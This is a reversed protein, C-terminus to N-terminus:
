LTWADKAFESQFEKAFDHTFRKADNEQDRQIKKESQDLEKFIQDGRVKIDTKRIYRLTRADLKKYPLAANFTTPVSDTAHLEFRDTHNNYVIFLEEAYEHVREPINMTSTFVPTLHPRDYLLNRIEHKKGEKYRKM